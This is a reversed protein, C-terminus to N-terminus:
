WQVEQMSDYDDAAYILDLLRQQIGLIQGAAAKFLTANELIKEAMVDVSIGRATAMNRIMECDCLQNLQFELAEEKQQPWSEREESSYPQALALLRRSGEARIQKEKQKRIQPCAAFIEASTAQGASDRFVKTRRAPDASFVSYNEPRCVEAGYTAPKATPKEETNLCLEPGYPGTCLTLEPQMQEVHITYGAYAPSCISISISILALTLRKM